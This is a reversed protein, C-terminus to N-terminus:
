KSDYCRKHFKVETWRIMWYHLINMGKKNYSKKVYPVTQKFFAVYEVPKFITTKSSLVAFMSM